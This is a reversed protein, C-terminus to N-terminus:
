LEPHRASLEHQLTRALLRMVKEKKDFIFFHNGQFQKVVIPTSTEVQWAKLEELTAEEDDGVMALIPVRLMPTEPHVYTESAEYDARLIPEFYELMEPDELVERPCASDRKLMNFFEKQPLKYKERNTLEVSPGRRGSVVLYMPLKDGREQIRQVIHYALLAGLSHGYIVYPLDVPIEVQEMLDDVMDSYNTLLPERVRKGHGPLELGNFALGKPTVNKWASFSYASGGAFPVCYVPINKKM